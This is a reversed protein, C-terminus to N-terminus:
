AEDGRLLSAEVESLEARVRLLADRRYRQIEQLARCELSAGLTLSSRSQYSRVRRTAEAYQRQWVGHAHRLARVRARLRLTTQENVAFDVILPRAAFRRAPAHPHPM